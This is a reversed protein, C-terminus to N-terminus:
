IGLPELELSAAASETALVVQNRGGAKAAYLALDARSLLELSRDTLPVAVGISVTIHLSVGGPGVIETAALTTRIREAAVIASEGDANPLVFLFEEGGWRILMDVARLTKQSERVLAVLVADGAAHGFHDNVAKFHDIDLLLVAFDRGDRSRRAFEAALLADGQRRNYAGTLPDVTALTKLEDETRKRETLDRTVVVFGRVDGAEDPLATIVTNGWFRTGDRKLRWSETEVSGTRRAQALLLDIHPRHPDEPPLFLSMDCGQVDEALWGGLRHLSRNWEEIKGELTITYIAYDRLHNFIAFFKQRDVYIKRGQEALKTVDALMAMYVNANVRSVTLSLVMASGGASAELWQKDVITGAVAPFQAVQRPLDPALPALSAFINHLTDDGRLSLLLSSAVANMLDVVGDAQFKVVGFPMIYLFQLLDEM